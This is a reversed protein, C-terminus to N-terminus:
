LYLEKLRKFESLERSSIKLLASPSKEKTSVPEQERRENRIREDGARGKFTMYQFHLAPEDFGEVRFASYKIPYSSLNKSLNDMLYCTAASFDHAFLYMDLGSTKKFFITNVEICEKLWFYYSMSAIIFRECDDRDNVMAVTIKNKAKNIFLLDSSGFQPSTVNDVLILDRNSEADLLFKKAADVLEKRTIPFSDARYIAKVM